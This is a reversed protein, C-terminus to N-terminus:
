RGKKKNHSATSKSLEIEPTIQFKARKTKASLPPRPESHLAHPAGGGSSSPFKRARAKGFNDGPSLAGRKSHPPKYPMKSPHPQRCRSRTTSARTWLTVTVPNRSKKKKDLREQQAVSSLCRTGAKERPARTLSLKVPMSNGSKSTTTLLRVPTATARKTEPSEQSAALKSLCRTGKKVLM